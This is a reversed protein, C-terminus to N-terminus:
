PLGALEERGHDKSEPDDKELNPMALGKEILKRAEAHRGMQAYTVGLEIYHRLCRPDLAIAKEFCRVAEENTSTPLEGYLLPGLTRKLKSVDALGQHWRGLVHWAIDNDPDLRIAKDVAAKIRPSADLQERSSQYPVMKGISIATSLQAGADEPALTTARQAYVLSLQGLRLKEKRSPADAMWYRYQLAIKVLLSVNEPEMELAPLYFKLAEEGKFVHNLADGSAILEEASAAGRVPPPLLLAWALIALHFSSFLHKM